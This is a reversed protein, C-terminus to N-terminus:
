SINLNSQIVKLGGKHRRSVGGDRDLRLALIGVVLVVPPSSAQVKVDGLHVLNINFTSTFDCKFTHRDIQGLMGDGDVVTGVPNSEREALAHGKGVGESSKCDITIYDLVLAATGVIKVTLPSSGEIKLRPLSVDVLRICM